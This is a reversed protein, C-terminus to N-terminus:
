GRPRFARAMLLLAGAIALIAPLITIGTAFIVTLAVDAAVELWAPRCTAPVMGIDPCLGTGSLLLFVGFALLVGALAAYCVWRLLRGALALARRV